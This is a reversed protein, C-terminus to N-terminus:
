YYQCNKLFICNDSKVAESCFEFLKYKAKLCKKVFFFTVSKKVEVNEHWKYKRFFNDGDCYFIYNELSYVIEGNEVYSFVYNIHNM